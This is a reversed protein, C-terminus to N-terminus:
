DLFFVPYHYLGRGSAQYMPISDSDAFAQSEYESFSGGVFVGVEKGVIEHKPIGASELAEFTCELLLRQQPDMSTAEQPTLSFFPADFLGLDEKLFNGGAANFCGRKGPNPHYFSAHEFREKPVESWGTRARSCLEWFEDPTTVNGPLRCSMGVIAIPIQRTGESEYRKIYGDTYGHTYADTYTRTTRPSFLQEAHTYPPARIGELPMNRASSAGEENTNIASPAM